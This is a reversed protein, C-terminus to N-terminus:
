WLDVLEDREEVEVTVAGQGQVLEPRHKSHESIRRNACGVRVRIASLLRNSVISRLALNSVRLIHSRVLRSQDASM